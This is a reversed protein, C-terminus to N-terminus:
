AEVLGYHGGGGPGQGLLRVGSDAAERSSLGRRDRCRRGAAVPEATLNTCSGDSQYCAGFDAGNVPDTRRDPVFGCGYTGKPAM